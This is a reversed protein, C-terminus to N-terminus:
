CSLSPPVKQLVLADFRHRVDVQAVFSRLFRRLTTDSIVGIRGNRTWLQFRLYHCHRLACNKKGSNSTLVIKWFVFGIVCSYCAQKYKQNCLPCQAQMQWVSGCKKCVEYHQVCQRSRITLRSAEVARAVCFAQLAFSHKRFWDKKLNHVCNESARSYANNPLKILSM